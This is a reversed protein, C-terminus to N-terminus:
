VAAMAEAKGKRRWGLLGLVGLGTAFLPLAGPIPTQAINALRTDHVLDLVGTSNAIQIVNKPSFLDGTGCLLLSGISPAGFQLYGNATFNFLMDNPGASLVNGALFPDVTNNAKTITGWVGNLILTISFDVINSQNLPGLTGDTSIFGFVHSRSTDLSLNTYTITDAHAAISAGCLAALTAALKSMM